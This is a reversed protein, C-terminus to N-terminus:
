GIREHAIDLGFYDVTMMGDSEYRVADPRIQLIDQAIVGRFRGEPLGKGEVYEFEAIPLGAPSTGVYKINKKLRADSSKNLYTSLGALTTGISSIAQGTQVGAAGQAAIGALTSSYQLQNNQNLGGTNAISLNAVDAGSLGFAREPNSEILSQFYARDYDQKSLVDKAVTTGAVNSGLTGPAIGAGANGAGTVGLGKEIGSTVFANQVSPDLPGTLQKYANEIDVNKAQVLGPLRSAFDQDSAQYGQIDFQLAQALTAPIDIPNFKPAQPANPTSGM